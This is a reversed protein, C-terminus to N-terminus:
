IQRRLKFGQDGSRSGFSRPVPNRSERLNELDNCVKARGVICCADFIDYNGDSDDLSNM